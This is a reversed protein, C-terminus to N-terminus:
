PRPLELVIELQDTLAAVFQLYRDIQQGGVLRVEEAFGLM